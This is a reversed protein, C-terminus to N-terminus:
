PRAMELPDCGPFRFRLQTINLAQELIQEYILEGGMKNVLIQAIQGQMARSLRIKESWDQLTEPTLKEPLPAIAITDKQQWFPESFPM